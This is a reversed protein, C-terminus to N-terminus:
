RLVRLTFLGTILSQLVFFMYEEIPVYGIRAVVREPPYGWVERYVLYNDWPTTYVFAIVVILGLARQAERNASLPRPPWLWLAALLPLTFVAHFGLYTM